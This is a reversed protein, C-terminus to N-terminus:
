RDILDVPEGYGSGGLHHAGEPMCHCGYYCYNGFRPKEQLWLVLIKLHRFKRAATLVPTEPAQKGSKTSTICNVENGM